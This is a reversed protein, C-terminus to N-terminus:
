SHPDIISMAEIWDLIALSLLKETMKKEVSKM